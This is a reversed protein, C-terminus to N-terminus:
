VLYLSFSVVLLHRNANLGNSQCFQKQKFAVYYMIYLIKAVNIYHRKIISRNSESQKEKKLNLYLM